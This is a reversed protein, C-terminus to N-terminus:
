RSYASASILKLQQRKLVDFLDSGKELVDALGREITLELHRGSSAEDDANISCYVATL